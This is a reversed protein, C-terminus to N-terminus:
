GFLQERRNEGRMCLVVCTCLFKLFPPKRRRKGNKRAESKKVKAEPIHPKKRIPM